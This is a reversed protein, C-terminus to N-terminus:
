WIGGEYGKYLLSIDVGGLKVVVLEKKDVVVDELLMEVVEVEGVDVVDFFEEEDVFDDEFLFFQEFIM